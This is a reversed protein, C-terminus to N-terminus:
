KKQDFEYKLEFKDNRIVIQYKGKPPSKILLLKNYNASPKLIQPPIVIYGDEIAEKTKYNFMTYKVDSIKLELDTGTHNKIEFIFVLEDLSSFQKKIFLYEVGDIKVSSQKGYVSFYVSLIIFVLCLDFLMIHVHRNKLTFFGNKTIEPKHSMNLREERNYHLKHIVGDVIIENNEPPKIPTKAM